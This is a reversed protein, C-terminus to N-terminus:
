TLFMLLFPHAMSRSRKWIMYNNLASPMKNFSTIINNVPKGKKSSTCSKVAHVIAKGKNADNSVKDDEWAKVLKHQQSPLKSIEFLSVCAKIRKMKDVINYDIDFVGLVNVITGISVKKNGNFGLSAAKLGISSSKTVNSRSM